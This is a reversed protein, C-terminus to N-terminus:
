NRTGVGRRQLQWDSNGETLGREWLSGWKKEAIYFAHLTRHVCCDPFKALVVSSCCLSLSVAEGLRLLYYDRSESHHYAAM